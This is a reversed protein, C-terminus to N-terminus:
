WHGMADRDGILRGLTSTMVPSDTRAAARSRRIPDLVEKDVVNNMTVITITM